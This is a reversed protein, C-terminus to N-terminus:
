LAIYTGVIACRSPTALNGEVVGPDPAVAGTDSSAFVTM